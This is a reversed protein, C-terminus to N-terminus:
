VPLRKSHLRPEAPQRLRLELAAQVEAEPQGLQLQLHGQLRQLPLGAPRLPLRADVHGHQPVLREPQQPRLQGRRARGLAGHLLAHEHLAAHQAGLVHVPGFVAPEHLQLLHLEQLLAARAGPEQRALLQVPLGPLRGRLAADPRQVAARLREQLPGDAPQTGAEAVERAPEQVLGAPFPRLFSLSPGPPKFRGGASSAGAPSASM